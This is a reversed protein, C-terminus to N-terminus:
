SQVEAACEHCFVHGCNACESGNVANLHIPEACDPCAGYEYADAVRPAAALAVGKDECHALIAQGHEILLLAAGPHAVMYANAGAQDAEPFRALVRYLRGYHAVYDPEAAAAKAPAQPTSALTQTSTDGPPPATYTPPPADIVVLVTIKVGWVPDNDKAPKGNAGLPCIGLGRPSHKYLRGSCRETIKVQNPENRQIDFIAQAFDIINHFM